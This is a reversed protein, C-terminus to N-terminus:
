RESEGVRCNNNSPPRAAARCVASRCVAAVRPWGRLWAPVRRNLAAARYRGNHEPQHNLLAGPAVATPASPTFTCARNNPTHWRALCVANHPCPQNSLWKCVPMACSSFDFIVNAFYHRSMERACVRVELFLYVCSGSRFPLWTSVNMQRGAWAQQAFRSSQLKGAFYSVIM